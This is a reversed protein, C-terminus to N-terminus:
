DGGTTALPSGGGDGRITKIENELSSVRNEVNDFRVGMSEFGGSPTQHLQQMQQMLGAMDSQMSGLTTSTQQSLGLTTQFNRDIRAMSGAQAEVQGALSNVGQSLSGMLGAQETMVGYAAQNFNQQNQSDVRDGFMMLGLLVVLAILWNNGGGENKKEM